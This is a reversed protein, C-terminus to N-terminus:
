DDEEAPAMMRTPTTAAVKAQRESVKTPPADPTLADFAVPEGEEPPPLPPQVAEHQEADTPELEADTPPTEETAVSYNTPPTQRMPTETAYQVTDLANPAITRPDGPGGIPQPDAEARNEHPSVITTFPQIEEGTVQNEPSM